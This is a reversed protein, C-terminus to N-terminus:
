YHGTTQFASDSVRALSPPHLENVDGGRRGFTAGRRGPQGVYGLDGVERGFGHRGSGSPM